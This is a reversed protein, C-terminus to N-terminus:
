RVIRPPTQVSIPVLVVNTILFGAPEPGYLAWDLQLSLMSLPTWMSILPRTFATAVAQGISSVQIDPNYLINAWDELDVFQHGRVPAFVAAILVVLAIGIVLRTFPETAFDLISSASVSRSQQERQHPEEDM